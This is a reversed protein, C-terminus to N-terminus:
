ALPEIGGWGLPHFSRSGKVGGTSATNEQDYLEMEDFSFSGNLAKASIRYSGSPFGTTNIVLNFPGNIALMKELTMKLDVKTENEAADGFIKVHYSGHPSILDSEARAAGLDDAPFQSSIWIRQMDDQLKMVGVNINKVKSAVITFNNPKGPIFIGPMSLNYGKDKSGSIKIPSSIPPMNLGVIDYMYRGSFTPVTTKISLTVLLNGNGKGSLIKDNDAPDVFDSANYYATTYADDLRGCHILGMSASGWNLSINGLRYPGNLRSKEITKGDFALQMTHNGDSFARHDASWVIGKNEMDFLFGYLSYEGPVVVNVGVDINLYDLLGDGNIDIGKDSFDGTLSALSFGNSMVQGCVAPCYVAMLFLLILLYRSM